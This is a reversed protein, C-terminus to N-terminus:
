RGGAAKSPWKFRINEKSGGFPSSSTHKKSTHSKFLKSAFSLIKKKPLFISQAKLPCAYALNESKRWRRMATLDSTTHTHIHTHKQIIVSIHIRLFIRINLGHPICPFRKSFRCDSDKYFSLQKGKSFSVLHITSCFFLSQTQLMTSM